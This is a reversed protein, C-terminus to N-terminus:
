RLSPVSRLIEGGLAAHEMLLVVDEGSFGIRKRLLAAPLGVAGVDHLLGARAVTTAVRTPLGAVGALAAASCAVRAGHGTAAPHRAEVVRAMGAVLAEARQLSAWALAADMRLFREGTSREESPLMGRGMEILAQASVACADLFAIVADELQA